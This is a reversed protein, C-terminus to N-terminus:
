HCKSMGYMKFNMAAIERRLRATTVDLQAVVLQEETGAIQVQELNVLAEVYEMEADRYAMKVRSEEAGQITERRPPFEISVVHFTM